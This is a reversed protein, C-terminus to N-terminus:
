YNGAPIFSKDFARLHIAFALQQIEIIFIGGRIGFARSQSPKSWLILM